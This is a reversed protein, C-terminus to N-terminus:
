ARRQLETKELTEDPTPASDRLEVPAKDDDNDETISIAAIRRQRKRLIDTCTNTTIRYIWTSFASNGKFSEINRYVRIFVEQAADYADERSSLMGYATNIIKSQYRGVLINFAEREGSKVKAALQEDTMGVM